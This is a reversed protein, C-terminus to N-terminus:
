ESNIRRLLRIDTERLTREIKGVSSVYLTTINVQDDPKDTPQEKRKM